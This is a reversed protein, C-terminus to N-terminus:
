KSEEKNEKTEEEKIEEVKDEKVEEAPKEEKEAKKEEKANAREQAKNGPKINFVKKHKKEPLIGEKILLREVTNTPQAGKNLWENIKDKDLKLEKKISDYTGLEELPEGQRKTRAQIAVIRYFPQFKKGIRKLRLKVM